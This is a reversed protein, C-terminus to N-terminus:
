CRQTRWRCLTEGMTAGFGTILIVPTQSTRVASDLEDWDDHGFAFEPMLVLTMISRPLVENLVPQQHAGGGVLLEQIVKVSDPRVKDGRVLEFDPASAQILCLDLKKNDLVAFDFSFEICGDVVIKKPSVM